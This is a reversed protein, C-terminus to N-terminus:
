LKRLTWMLKPLKFFFFSFFRQTDQHEWRYFLADLDSLNHILKWKQLEADWFQLENTHALLKMNERIEWFDVNGVIFKGCYHKWIGNLSDAGRM